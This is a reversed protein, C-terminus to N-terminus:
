INDAGCARTAATSFINLFLSGSGGWGLAGTRSM